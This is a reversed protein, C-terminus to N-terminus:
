FAQVIELQFLRQTIGREGLIFNPRATAVRQVRGVLTLNRSIDYAARLRYVQQRSRNDQESALDALEIGGSLRLRPLARWYAELRLSEAGGLGAGQPPAVPYGIPRNRYYYDSDNLARLGLYTRGQLNAYEAFLGLRAPDSPSFFHAGILTGLRNRVLNSQNVGIDDLLFEAWGRVGKGVSSEIYAQVLSNGNDAATNRRRARELTNLPIPSFAALFALPDLRDRPLLLTEAIGVRTQKGIQVQLNHGYLSRSGGLPGRDLPAYLGQLQYSGRKFTSQVLNLPGAVDSLLLTGFHGPGWWIEDRGVKLSLGRVQNKANFELFARDLDFGSDGVGRRSENGANVQAFLKLNEGAVGFINTRTDFGSRTRRGGQRESFPEISGDKANGGIFSARSQGSIGFSFGHEGRLGELTSQEVGLQKLETEYEDTLSLLAAREKGSLGEEGRTASVQLAERVLDAIQARSFTIDEETRHARVGDEHFVHAPYRTILKSSALAALYEYTVDARPVVANSAGTEWRIPAAPVPRADVQGPAQVITIPATAIGPALPSANFSASDGSTVPGATEDRWIIEGQSSNDTLVQLRAIAIIEGGRMIPVKLGTRAGQNTGADITVTGNEVKTVTAMVPTGPATSVTTPPLAPTSPLTTAPTQPQVPQPQAPQPQVPQPQIPQAPATPAVDQVAIFQATDGVSLIFDDEANLVIALSDTPRVQTIQVRARVRGDRAIGYVAGRAAGDQAGIGVTIEAGRVATILAEKPPAVANGQAWLPKGWSLSLSLAAAWILSSRCTSFSRM